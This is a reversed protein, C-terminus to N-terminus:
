AFLESAHQAAKAKIEEIDGFTIEGNEYVVDGGVMTLVVDSDSGSYVMHNLLNERPCYRVGSTDIIILDAQKGTELSGTIHSLGLAQAGNITALRVATKAPILSPDHNVGKQLLATLTMEEMMSLNNNSAASDTACSVNVGKSLMQAVRAVGSGLKLNSGPCSLVSVGNKAMLEIDDDSVWVCHAAMVPMELVGLSAFLGIPTKGHRAICEQHEGRTESVHVHIRANLRAASDRVKQMMAPSVTYEAHPGIAASVRDYSQVVDFLAEAKKLRADGGGDIDLVATSILARLGADNAATAVQETFNYMDSFCTVGSSAFESMALMSGWYVADATLREEAPWIRNQLWDMLAMDDAYGRMMTMPVHTHTNIFGPAVIGGHADITRDAQIKPALAEPGAYAITKGQVIVCGNVCTDSSDATVLFGNKIYINM